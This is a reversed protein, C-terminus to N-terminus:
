CLLKQHKNEAPDYLSLSGSHGASLWRTVSENPHWGTKTLNLHKLIFGSGGCVWQGRINSYWGDIIVNILYTPVFKNKCLHYFRRRAADVCFNILFTIFTKIILKRWNVITEKGITLKLALIDFVFQSYIAIFSNSICKVLFQWKMHM